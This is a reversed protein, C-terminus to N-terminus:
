RQRDSDIFSHRSFQTNKPQTHKTKKRRKRNLKKSIETEEKENM